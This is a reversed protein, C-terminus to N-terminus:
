SASCSLVSDIYNQTEAEEIQELYWAVFEDDRTDLDLHYNFFDDADREQASEYFYEEPLYNRARELDVGGEGDSLNQDSELEIEYSVTFRDADAMVANRDAKDFETLLGEKLYKRWSELILKM